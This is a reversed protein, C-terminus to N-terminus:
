TQVDKVLEYDYRRRNRRERLVFTMVLATFLGLVTLTICVVAGWAVDNGISGISFDGFEKATVYKWPMSNIEYLMAGLAWGVKHGDIVRVARITDNMGFGYGNHLLQFVYTSRFCYSDLENEDINSGAAFSVLNDHNLSCAFSTANYLQALSATDPLSLFQWVHYYNSFALFEGFNGNEQRPLDPQYIGALSCDGQHAFDCWDNKELHLLDKTLGMCLDFDATANDNILTAQYFANGSPFKSEYKWTEMGHDLHIDTRIDTKTGGPLCPNYIGQILREESSKGAALRSEFRQIAENMGYYLFSHAYVNWHKAQGIQLKFLNSMIDENQEYFGIQTSGGGLDLAGHTLKPNSVTGAGRSQDLLNGMLFNVGTWDFIAEEEGSLVRAQEDVFAFPCYTSNTFLSRVAQMIRLRDNPQLTRMGATARLFIPFNKFHEQKSHLVTRAFDLLPQLYEGIAGQLQDDPVDGFSSLGPRLRDTWRSRTGPFSLKEGSVAAQIDDADRLVRPEWEYIHMRSGTSGADIMFGHVTSIDVATNAYMENLMKEHRRLKKIRKKNAKHEKKHEDSWFEQEKEAELQEAPSLRNEKHRLRRVHQSSHGETTDSEEEESRPFQQQALYLKWSDKDEMPHKEQRQKNTKM